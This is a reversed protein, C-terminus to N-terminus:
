FGERLRYALRLHDCPWATGCRVCRQLGRTPTHLLFALVTLGYLQVPQPLPADNMSPELSTAATSM